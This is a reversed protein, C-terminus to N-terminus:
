NWPNYILCVFSAPCLMTPYWPIGWNRASEVDIWLIKPHGDAPNQQKEWSFIVVNLHWKSTKFTNGWKNSWSVTTHQGWVVIGDQSSLFHDFPWGESSHNEHFMRANQWIERLKRSAISYDFIAIALPWFSPVRTFGMNLTKSTFFFIMSHSITHCYSM